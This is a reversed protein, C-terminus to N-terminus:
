VAEYLGKNHVVLTLVVPNLWKQSYYQFVNTECWIAIMM